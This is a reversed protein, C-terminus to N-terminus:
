ERRLKQLLLTIKARATKLDGRQSVQDAEEMGYTACTRLWQVAVSPNPASITTNDPRAINATVTDEDVLKGEVTDLYSLTANAHPIGQVEESINEDSRLTVEFIVDRREEAYLDGLKVVYSSDEKKTKNEHHVMILKAEPPASISLVVNQAVVSLVGGFADGFASSVDSDSELFYYTGGSTAQSVDRLLNEDHRTGYGFTHVTMPAVTDDDANTGICGKTLEVVGEHDRIGKNVHGDTLIFISRVSNPEEIAHMEKAGMGIGGSLNTGRRSKISMITRLAAQKNADNLKRAPIEIKAEDSFTVLGFRDKPRLERLLLELTKKCLALKKRAMSASVDLVVVVDVPARASDDDSIESAKITACIQSTGKNKSKLGIEDYKPTLKVTLTPPPSHKKANTLM